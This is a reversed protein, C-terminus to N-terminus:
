RENEAFNFRFQALNQLPMRWYQHRIGPLNAQRAHATRWSRLTVPPATGTFPSGDGLENAPCSIDHGTRCWVRNAV